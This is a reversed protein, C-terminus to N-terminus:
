SHWASRLIADVAATRASRVVAALPRVADAARQAESSSNVAIATLGTSVTIIADIHAANELVRVARPPAHAPIRHQRAAEVLQGVLPRPDAAGAGACGLGIDALTDAASRVAARLAYEADGLDRHEAIPASPLAYVTWCLASADRSDPEDDAFDPVLGVASGDPEAVIVAEGTALAETEFETGAPLGRVDGPVPLVPNIPGSPRATDSSPAQAGTAVRLTQLLSVAGAHHGDPWPLGTNGAAVADYAAVSQM